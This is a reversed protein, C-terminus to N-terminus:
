PIDGVEAHREFSVPHINEATATLVRRFPNDQPMDLVLFEVHEGVKGGLGITSNLTKRGNEFVMALLEADTLVDEPILARMARIESFMDPPALMANDTGLCVTVGVELMMEVPPRLGFFANATPCVVVPIGASACMGLDSDTAEIMHVLFAPELEMIADIDERATESAHLAFPKGAKAAADALGRLEEQDWDAMASVGIGDAVSLLAALEEGDCSRGDPRGFIVPRAGTGVSANLLRRAGELGGERFDIFHATGSAVMRVVAARLVAVHEEASIERLMRHKLGDPPGVIEAVSGGEPRPIFADGLHTHCNVFRPIIIGEALAGEAPDDFFRVGEETLEVHGEVFGGDVYVLGSVCAM